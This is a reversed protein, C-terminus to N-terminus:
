KARAMIAVWDDRHKVCQVEFGNKGLAECVEQERDSIIGSTVFLGNEGVIQRAFPVLPIIVSAVINALVLDYKEAAVREKAEGDALVNGTFVTYEGGIGNLEANERVVDEVIPDIDVAVASKAGLLLAAISLIGSGCGLDAVSMGSVDLGEIFELCMGTTQHSGSGFAMGPDLSLTVRGTDEAKEWSPCVLLREGIEIPKYYAKWNNAWDEEDVEDYEMKLSGLDIGLEEKKLAEIDPAISAILERNEDIDAIYATVSPEPRDGVLERPEAYDWYLSAERLYSEIGQLDENIEVQEIGLMYLRGAVAELAEPTTYISIKKWM